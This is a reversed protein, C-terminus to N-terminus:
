RCFIEESLPLKFAISTGQGFCSELFVYDVLKKKFESFIEALWPHSTTDHFILIGGEALHPFCFALDQQATEYGHDGDVLILDFLQPLKNDLWLLPLIDISSGSFFTPLKSINLNEFAAKLKEPTANECSAHFAWTDVGYGQVQPAAKLVLAMSRGMWVGIELYNKPQMKKAVYYLIEHMEQACGQQIKLEANRIDDKIKTLM